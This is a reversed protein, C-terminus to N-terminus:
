KKYHYINEKIAYWGKYKKFEPNIKNESISQYIRKGNNKYSWQFLSGPLNNEKCFKFFSKEIIFILKDNNDFIKVTSVWPHKLDNGKNVGVLEGSLYRKDNKSVRKFNGDKDKVTITDKCVGEWEGSLYKKDYISGSFINGNKDKFTSFTSTGGKGGPVLNLLPGDKYQPIFKSGIEEILFEELEFAENESLNEIKKIEVKENNKLIKNLKNLFPYQKRNKYKCLTLHFKYRRGYGKGVYIPINKYFYIYTYFKLDERIM